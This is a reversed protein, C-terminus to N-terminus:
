VSRTMIIKLPIHLALKSCNCYAEKSLTKVTHNDLVPDSAWKLIRKLSSINKKAVKPM